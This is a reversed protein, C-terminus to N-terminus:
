HLISNIYLGERTLFHNNIIGVVVRSLGKVSIQLENFKLGEM